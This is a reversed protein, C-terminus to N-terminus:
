LCVPAGDQTFQGDEEPQQQRCDGRCGRGANHWLPSQVARLQDPPPMEREPGVDPMRLGRQPASRGVFLIRWVARPMPAPLQCGHGVALNGEELLLWHQRLGEVAGRIGPRM